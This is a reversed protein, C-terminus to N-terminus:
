NDGEFIIEEYDVQDQPQEPEDKLLLLLNELQFEEVEVFKITVTKLDPDYIHDKYKM